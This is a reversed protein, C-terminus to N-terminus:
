LRFGFGGSSVAKEFEEREITIPNLFCLCNPHPPQPTAEKPFVGAGLGFGDNEALEDCEDLDTHSGSLEWKEAEVWPAQSYANNSVNHFADHMETRSIRLANYSTGGPTAPSVLARIESAIRSSSLGEAIGRQIIADINMRMIFENRVIINSIDYSALYQSRLQSALNEADAVLTRLLAQNARSVDEGLLRVLQAQHREVLATVNGVGNRVEVQISSWLNQELALIQNRMVQYNSGRVAAGDRLPGLGQTILRATDTAAQRLLRRIHSDTRQQARVYDLFARRSFVSFDPAAM